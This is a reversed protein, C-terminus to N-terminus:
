GTRRGVWRVGFYWIMAYSLTCVAAALAGTWLSPLGAVSGAALLGLSVGIATAVVAAAVRAPGPAWARFEEVFLWVPLIVALWGNARGFTGVGVLTAAWDFVVLALVGIVLGALTIGLLDPLAVIRGEADRRPYRDSTVDSM